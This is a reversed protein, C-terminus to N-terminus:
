KRSFARPIEVVEAGYEPLFAFPHEFAETAKSNPVTQRYWESDTEVEILTEDTENDWLLAVSVGRSERANIELLM